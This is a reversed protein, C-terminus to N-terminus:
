HVNQVSFDYLLPPLGEGRQLYIAYEGLQLPDAPAVQYLGPKPESRLMQLQHTISVGKSARWSGGAAIEIQRRDGHTELKVLLLDGATVGNDIEARSPVFAFTPRTGTLTQAHRGPLQVNDHAAKISLTVTSVLRSGTREFTIPQGLVKTQERGAVFYLGSESPLDLTVGGVTSSGAIAPGSSANTSKPQAPQAGASNQQAKAAKPDIMASIVRESVGDNKLRLTESASLHFPKGEEVIQQVIVEDSIRARSLRIIENVTLKTHPDPALYIETPYRTGTTPQAQQQQAGATCCLLLTVAVFHAKM